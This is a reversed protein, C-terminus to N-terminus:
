LWEKKFIKWTSSLIKKLKMETVFKTKFENFEAPSGKYSRECKSECIIKANNWSLDFKVSQQIESDEFLKLEDYSFYEFFNSNHQDIQANVCKLSTM